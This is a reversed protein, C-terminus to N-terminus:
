NGGVFADTILALISCPLPEPSRIVVTGDKDWSPSQQLFKDGNFLTLVDGYLAPLGFNAERLHDRDPGSWLGMTNELRVGLKTRHKQKGQVTEGSEGADLRLTEIEATYPLGIHVRSAANPLTVSGNSVAVDPFVYGNATGTVTEGELHWLGSVTTTAERVAM